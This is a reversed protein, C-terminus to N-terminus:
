LLVAEGKRVVANKKQLSGLGDVNVVGHTTGGADVGPAGLHRGSRREKVKINKIDVRM